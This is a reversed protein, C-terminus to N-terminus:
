IKSTILEILEISGTSMLSRLAETPMTSPMLISAWSIWYPIAELPWIIGFLTLNTVVISACGIAAGNESKKVTSVVMGLTMGWFITIM